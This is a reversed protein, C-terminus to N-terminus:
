GHKLGTHHSGSVTLLRDNRVRAVRGTQWARIAATYGQGEDTLSIEPRHTCLGDFALPVDSVHRLAALSDTYVGHDEHYQANADYVLMAVRRLPWDPDRVADVTPDSAPPQDSFQLYGWREPLHMNIAGM